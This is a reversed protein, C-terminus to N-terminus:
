SIIAIHMYGKQIVNFIKIEHWKELTKIDKGQYGGECLNEEDNTHKPGLM